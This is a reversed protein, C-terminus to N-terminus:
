EVKQRERVILSGVGGDYRIDIKDGAFEFGQTEWIGSESIFESEFQVSQAAEPVEINGLGSEGRVRLAAGTPIEVECNGVGGEIEARFFPSYVDVLTTGAGINLNLTTRSTSPVTMDLIGVGGDVNANCVGNPFTLETRGTGGDMVLRPVNLEALDFTDKTLGANITLHIPIRPSLAINWQLETNHAVTDVADKMPKFLDMEANRKQRLRVTKADGETTSIMEVAGIATVHAEILNDNDPPLAKISVKGVTLDLRVHARSVDKLPEVLTIAQLDADTGIGLQNMWQAINEGFAEFAETLEDEPRRKRPEDQTM